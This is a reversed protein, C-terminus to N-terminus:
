IAFTIQKNRRGKRLSANGERNTLKIQYYNKWLIKIPMRLQFAQDPILMNVSLHPRNFKYIEISLMQQGHLDGEFSM